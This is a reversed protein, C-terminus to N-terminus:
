GESSKDDAKGESSSESDADDGGDGEDIPPPPDAGFEFDPSCRIAWPFKSLLSKSYVQTYRVKERQCWACIVRPDIYNTKSTGLSVQMTDGKIKMAADAKSLRDRASEVRKKLAEFNSPFKNPRPRKPPKKKKEDEEAQRKRELARASDLKGTDLDSAIHELLQVLTVNDDDSLAAVSEEDDSEPVVKVKRKAPQTKPSQAAM